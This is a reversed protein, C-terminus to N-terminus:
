ASEEESEQKEGQCGAQLLPIPYFQVTNGKTRLLEAEKQISESEYYSIILYDVDTDQPLESLYTQFNKYHKMSLHAFVEMLLDKQGQSSSPAVYVKEKENDVMTANIGFGAELQGDIANCTLTAALRILYELKYYETESAEGWQHESLQMNVLVILKPSATFDHQKVHLRGTRATAGWHIDKIPDGMRYDRIGNYLFPDPMIWRRVMLDGQWRTSPSLVEDPSLLRPYVTVHLNLQMGKTEAHFGFLDGCTLSASSVNYYGRKLCTIKHRRTVQAFPRLFFISRHYREQTIDQEGSYRFRLESPIRSEVRLWPVPTLKRNRLVEVMEIEDGQSVRTKSFSRTYTLQRFGYKGLILTQLGLVLASMLIVWLVNM